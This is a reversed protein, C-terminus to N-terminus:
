TQKAVNILQPQRQFNTQPRLKAAFGNPYNKNFIKTQKTLSSALIEFLGKKGNLNNVSTGAYSKCGATAQHVNLRRLLRGMMQLTANHSKNGNVWADTECGLTKMSVNEFLKASTRYDGGHQKANHLQTLNATCTLQKSVLCKM